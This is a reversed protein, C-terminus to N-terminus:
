LVNLVIQSLKLKRPEVDSILVFNDNECRFDNATREFLANSEKSNLTVFSEIFLIINLDGKSQECNNM